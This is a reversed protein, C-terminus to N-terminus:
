LTRVSGSPFRIVSFLGKRRAVKSGMKKLLPLLCGSGAHLLWVCEVIKCSYLLCISICNVSVLIEYM